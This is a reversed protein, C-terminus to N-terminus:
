RSIDSVVHRQLLTEFEGAGKKELQSFHKRQFKLIERYVRHTKEQPLKNPTHAVYLSLRWGGSRSLIEVVYVMLSLHTFNLVCDIPSCIQDHSSKLVERYNNKSSALTLFKIVHKLPSVRIYM